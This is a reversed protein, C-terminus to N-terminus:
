NLDAGSHSHNHIALCNLTRSLCMSADDDYVDIEGAFTMLIPVIPFSQIERWVNHGFSLIRVNTRKHQSNYNSAVIKYTGTSNDCGFTFNYDDLFPFNPHANNSPIGHRFYGFNPSTIKTALNWLCFFFFGFSLFWGVLVILGNCSGVMRSCDIDEDSLHYYPDVVLTFLPNETLLNLSYPVGSHNM